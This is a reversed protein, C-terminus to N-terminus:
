RTRTLGPGSVGAGGRVQTLDQVQFRRIIVDDNATTSLLEVRM